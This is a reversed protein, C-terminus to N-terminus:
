TTTGGRLSFVRETGTRLRDINARHRYVILLGAAISAILLSEAPRYTLWFFVPLILAGIISGLSIYKTFAVVLVFVVTTELLALPAIYLFAGIYCAVAKGGRFGLFVPYCHGLMVALIAFAIVLPEGRSSIAALWIAIFGKLIDLLLVILGGKKGATRHVNTAGINGSGMTRIDKRMTLRIFWYGFPLAGILYALLSSVAVELFL